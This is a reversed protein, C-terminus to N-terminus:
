SKLKCPPIRRSSWLPLGGSEGGATVLSWTWAVILRLPTNEGGMHPATVSFIKIAEEKLTMRAHCTLETRLQHNWFLLLLIWDHGFSIKKKLYSINVLHGDISEQFTLYVKMNERNSVELFFIHALSKFDQTVRNGQKSKSSDAACVFDFYPSESDLHM